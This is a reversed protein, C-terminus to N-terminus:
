EKESEELMYFLDQAIRQISYAEFEKSPEKENMLKKLEQWIHVAEHALLAHKQWLSHNNKRLLVIASTQGNKEDYFAVVAPTKYETPKYGLKKIQKETRCLTYRIHEFPTVYWDPTYSM